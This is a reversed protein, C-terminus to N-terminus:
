KKSIKVIRANYKEIQELNEKKTEEYMKIDEEKDETLRDLSHEARTINAWYVSSFKTCAANNVINEPTVAQYAQDVAEIADEIARDLKSQDIDHQLTDGSMDAKFQTIIDNCTRVEGKFFKDMKGADDLKLTAMIKKVLAFESVVEVVSKNEKSM